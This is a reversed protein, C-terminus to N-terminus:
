ESKLFAKIEPFIEMMAKAVNIAIERHEKQTDEGSRTEIYHIWSRVSGNMYLHTNTLGEPLVVRAQEKAVGNDIAWKYADTAVNIVKKQWDIWQELLEVDPPYNLDIEISSQRNKPDQLRLERLTFADEFSKTPDAYRQSFEQFAFSVHRIIQHAIDRTTRIDMCINAMQFPSWHKHKLLYHILKDATQMNNQNAPNSVRAVYVILEQISRFEIDKAAPHNPNITTYSFLEVDTM